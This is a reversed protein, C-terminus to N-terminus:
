KKGAKAHKTGPTKRKQRIKNKTSSEPKPENLGNSDDCIEKAIAYKTKRDYKAKVKVHAPKLKYTSWFVAEPPDTALAYEIVEGNDRIYFCGNIRGKSDLM